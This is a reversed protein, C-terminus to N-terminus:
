DLIAPIINRYVLEIIQFVQWDSTDWEVQSDATTVIIMNIAPIDIIFQGGYGIALYLQYEDMKGLWWLYGYGINRLPGWNVNQQGSYDKWSDEVWESPVIQNGNMCGGNIYLQGFRVLSRPLFYMNNGGFYIGQPDQRWDTLTINSPGLLRTAAFERISIGTSKTLIGSLLHTQATNYSFVSGPDYTLPFEICAKIWNSSSFIKSYNYREHEYGAKQTLLHRVTISSKRPDLGPTNYEPFFDLMAQNLDTLYNERRAIGVLASLFSKSISKVNHGTLSDYGNFYKESVLVANKSILLADVFTLNEAEYYAAALRQPDLGQAAPSSIWWDANSYTEISAPNKECSLFLSFFSIVIFGFQLFTRNKM